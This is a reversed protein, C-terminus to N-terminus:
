PCKMMLMWSWQQLGSSNNQKMTPHNEQVSEDQKDNETGLGIDEGGFGLSQNVLDNKLAIHELEMESFGESNEVV